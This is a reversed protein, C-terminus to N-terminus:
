LTIGGCGPQDWVYLEDYAAVITNRHLNLSRALVRSAPLAVGPKLFGKRIACIVENALQQYAPVPLNKDVQIISELLEMQVVTNTIEPSCTYDLM